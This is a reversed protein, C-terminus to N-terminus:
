TVTTLLWSMCSLITKSMRWSNQRGLLVPGAICRAATSVRTAVRPLLPRDQVDGRGRHVRVVRGCVFMLLVCGPRRVVNRLVFGLVARCGSRVVADVLLVLDDGTIGDEV